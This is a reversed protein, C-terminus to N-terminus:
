MPRPRHVDPVARSATTPATESQRCQPRSSPHDPAHGHYVAFRYRKFAVDVRTFGAARLWALQEEMTSCRDHTMRQLAAQWEADDTGLARSDREHVAVYQRTHWDTPGLVQEANVFVGGPSLRTLISRFLDQKADDSLHHIALASVIADFPGRPLPDTIDAIIYTANDGLRQHALFLMDADADLLTLQAAPLARLIAESLLGTGAGLDLIRATPQGLEAVLEVTTGYFRDFEPVLRRRPADYQSADWVPKDCRSNTKDSM